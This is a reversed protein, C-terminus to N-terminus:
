GQELERKQPCTLTWESSWWPSLLPSFFFGSLDLWKNKGGAARVWVPFAAAWKTLLSSSLIKLKMSRVPGLKLPYYSSTNANLEELYCQSLAISFDTLQESPSYPGTHVPYLFSFGPLVFLPNSVFTSDPGPPFVRGEKGSFGSWARTLM